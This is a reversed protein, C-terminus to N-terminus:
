INIKVKMKKVVTSGKTLEEYDCKALTLFIEVLRLEIKM